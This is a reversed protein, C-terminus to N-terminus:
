TNESTKKWVFIFLDCSPVWFGGFFTYIFSVLTGPVIGEIPWTRAVNKELTKCKKMNRFM